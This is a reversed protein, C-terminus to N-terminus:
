NHTLVLEMFFRVPAAVGSDTTAFSMTNATMGTMAIASGAKTPTVRPWVQQISIGADAWAQGFTLTITGGSSVATPAPLSGGGSMNVNVATSGAVPEIYFFGLPTYLPHWSGEPGLMYAGNKTLRLGASDNRTEFNMYGDAGHWAAFYRSTSSGLILGNAFYRSIYRTEMKGMALTWEAGTSYMGAKCDSTNKLTLTLRGTGATAINVTKSGLNLTNTKEQAPYSNGGAALGGYQLKLTEEGIAFTQTGVTLTLTATVQAYQAGVNVALGSDDTETAPRASLRASVAVTGSVRVTGEAFQFDGSTYTRTGSLKNRSTWRGGALPGIDISDFAGFDGLSAPGSPYRTGDLVTCQRGESDYVAVSKEAPDIVVREGGKAGAEVRRATISDADILTATIQGNEDVLMTREGSNNEVEFNDATIKVKRERIDIGTPLLADGLADEERYAQPMVAGRVVAIYKLNCDGSYHWQGDIYKGTQIILKKGPVGSASATFTGVVEENDIGGVVPKETSLVGGMSWSGAYVTVVGGPYFRGRLRVTVTAGAEIEETLAFYTGAAFYGNAASCVADVFPTACLNPVAQRTTSVQATIRDSRVELEGVSQKLGAADAEVSVVRETIAEATQELTSTREKVATVEGGLTTFQGRTADKWQGLDEQVKTVESSIKGDLVNFQSKTWDTVDQYGGNVLVKFEGRIFNGSPSLRATLKEAPFSYSDLKEYCVLCPALGSGADYASLMVVNGRTPDAKSGVTHVEDGERPASNEVSPDCDTKSVEIWHETREEGSVSTGRVLEVLELTSGSDAEYVGQAVCRASRIMMRAETADAPWAFTVEAVEDDIGGEVPVTVEANWNGGLFVSTLAWLDGERAKAFRGRIRLTVVEGAAPVEGLPTYSGDAHKFYGDSTISLGAPRPEACLNELRTGTKEDYVYHSTGTAVCRRWWYRNGTMGDEQRELAFTKCRVLDGSEFENYVVRGQGDSGEFYCRWASTRREVRTLVAGAPSLIVAGGVHREKQIEVERATLKRRVHFVDGEVHSTGQADTWVSAGTSGPFYDGISIGEKVEIKHGVNLDGDVNVDESVTAGKRIVVEGFEADGNPDIKAGDNNLVYHGVRIGQMFTWLYNIVEKAKKSTFELYSRLASFVNTDSPRTSDTRKIVYVGGAGPTGVANQSSSKSFDLADIKDEIEGIRTYAAKEGILYVPNDYAFDLPMEYGLVRSIRGNKFYGAHVLNVSRGISLCPADPADKVLGCAFDCAVTCQYTSADINLQSIYKNTRALLDQEARSIYDTQEDSLMAINFGHLIFEDGIGPKIYENPLLTTSDRKIQFHYNDELLEVEFTMGNLQGSQFTIKLSEGDILYDRNFLNANNFLDDHYIYARWTKTTTSGDQEKQEDTYEDSRSLEVIKSIRQPYCDEFIVVDEVAEEEAEMPFADIFGKIPNGDADKEPLLLRSNVIGNTSVDHYKEFVSYMSTFYRAPILATNLQPLRYKSGAPISEGSPLTLKRAESKFDENFIANQISRKVEGTVIDLIEITVGTAKWETIDSVSVNGAVLLTVTHKAGTEEQGEIYVDLQVKIETPIGRTNFVGDPLVLTVEKAVTAEGKYMSERVEVSYTDTPDDFESSNLMATATLKAVAFGYPSGSTQSVRITLKSANIEYRSASYTLNGSLARPGSSSINARSTNNAADYIASIEKNSFSKNLSTSNSAYTKATKTVSGTKFWGIEIPRESDFIKGGQIEANFILSKRYNSAINRTSGYAYIRTAYTEKSNRRSIDVLEKGIELKIPIEGHQCKGFHLVNQEFWWECEYAEAIDAIADIINKKDYQITVAKTTDVSDDCEISWDTKSNYLFNKRDAMLTENGDDDRSYALARLNFLIQQAHNAITDTYTWSTENSGIQPLFKCLKNKFKWYQADLRIEYDYGGTNKNLEGRTPATLEYRGVNEIEVYDGLHLLVPTDTSFKLTLYDHEMLMFNRKSGVGIQANLRTTGDSAKKIIVNANM